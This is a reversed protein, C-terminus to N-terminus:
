SHQFSVSIECSVLNLSIKEKTLGYWIEANFLKGNIFVSERLLLPIEFYHKGFSVIDPMNLNQRVIGIGKSERKEVNNTNREDGSILDGM